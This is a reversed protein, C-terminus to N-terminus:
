EIPFYRGCVYISEVQDLDIAEPFNWINIVGYRKEANNAYTAHGSPNWEGQKEWDLETGDKMRVRIPNFTLEDPTGHEFAATLGLPSLEVWEANVAKALASDKELTLKDTSEVTLPITLQVDNLKFEKLPRLVTMGVEGESGGVTIGEEGLEDEPIPEYGIKSPPMYDYIHRIELKADELNGFNQGWSTFVLLATKNEGNYVAYGPDFSYSWYTGDIDLGQENDTLVDVVGWPEMDASLRDGELDRVQVYARLTSGDSLASLVKVEFGDLLYTKDEQEQAYPAFGGLAAALMERLGPSAALATGMLLACAAAAILVGRVAGLGAKKGRPPLGDLTKQLRGDFGEPVICEEKDAMVRLTEDFREM